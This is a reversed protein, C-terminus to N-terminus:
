TSFRGLRRLWHALQARAYVSFITHLFDSYSVHLWVTFTHRFHSTEYKVSSQINSGPIHRRKRRRRSPSRILDNLHTFPRSFRPELVRNAEVVQVLADASHVPHQLVSLTPRPSSAPCEHHMRWYHTTKTTENNRVAMWRPNLKPAEAVRANTNDNLQMHIRVCKVIEQSQVM